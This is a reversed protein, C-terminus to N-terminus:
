KPSRHSLLAARHWFAYQSRFDLAFEKWHYNASFYKYESFLFVKETLNGQLGGFFQHASHGHVKLTGTPVVRFRAM